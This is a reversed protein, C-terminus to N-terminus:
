CGTRSVYDAKNRNTGVDAITRHNTGATFLVTDTTGTENLFAVTGTSMNYHVSEIRNQWAWTALNQWGCSSLKGRPYTYNVGDYFCFWGSPCDAAARVNPDRALTVILAGGAYSLDRAGIQTGGPHQHLWADIKAQDDTTAGAASTGTARAALAPQAYLAIGFAFLTPLLVALIRCTRFHDM